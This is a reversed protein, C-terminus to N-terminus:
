AFCLLIVVGFKFVLGHVQMGLSGCLIGACSKIVFPFTFKDPFVSKDSHTLMQIFFTIALSHHRNHTYTRIIANYSFINPHLLQQFLSTAYGIHGINDCSDVMKTVLFNSQSLSLKIIHAHIKKLQTIKFCNKLSAIYRNELERIFITAM